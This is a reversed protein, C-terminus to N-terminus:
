LHPQLIFASKTSHLGHLLFPLLDRHFVLHSSVQNSEHKVLGLSAAFVFRLLGPRLGSFRMLLLAVNSHAPPVLQCHFRM